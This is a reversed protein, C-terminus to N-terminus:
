QQVTRRILGIFVLGLSLLALINPEPVYEVDHSYPAFSNVQIDDISSTMLDWEGGAVTFLDFHLGDVDGFLEIDSISFMQTYGKGTGTEGPQVDDIDGVIGDFQFEYVEYYTDYINHPALSNTDELPPNGYGSTFYTAGDITINFADSTTDPSPVAAVVLYAFLSDSDWAYSGNGGDESTANAYAYLDFNPSSVDWTETANNYYWDDSGDGALQLSPIALVASSFTALLTLLLANLTKM